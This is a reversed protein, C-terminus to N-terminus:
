TGGSCASVSGRSRRGLRFISRRETFVAQQPEPEPEQAQVPASIVFKAETAFSIPFKPTIILDSSPAPVRAEVSGGPPTPSWGPPRPVEQSQAVSAFFCVLWLSISRM